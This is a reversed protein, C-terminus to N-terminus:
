CMKGRTKGRQAIGDGRSASVSGGNAYKKTMGGKRMEVNAEDDNFKRTRKAAESNKSSQFKTPQANRRLEGALEARKEAAALEARKAAAKATLGEAAAKAFNIGQYGSMAGLTNTINRGLESGSASKGSVPKRSKDLPISNIMDAYLRPKPVEVDQVKPESMKDRGGLKEAQYVTQRKPASVNASTTKRATDAKRAFAATPPIGPPSAYNESIRESPSLDEGAERAAVVQQAVRRPADPMAVKADPMAVDADPMSVVPTGVRDEVPVKSARESAGRGAGFRKYAESKSDDINGMGLRKFSEFFGVDEGKSAKLGAEKDESLGGEDFRKKTSKMYVKTFKAKPRAVNLLVM